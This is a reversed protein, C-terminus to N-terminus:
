CNIDLPISVMCKFINSFSWFCRLILLVLMPCRLQKLCPGELAIYTTWIPVVFWVGWFFKVPFTIAAEWQHMFPESPRNLSTFTFSAEAPWGRPPHGGWSSPRGTSVWWARSKLVGSWKRFLPLFCPCALTTWGLASNNSLICHEAPFGLCDTERLDRDSWYLVTGSKWIEIHPVRLRNKIKAKREKIKM